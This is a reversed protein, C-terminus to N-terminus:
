KKRIPSMVIRYPFPKWAKNTGCGCNTSKYISVDQGEVTATYGYQTTGKIDDLMWEHLLKGTSGAVSYVWVRDLGILVKVPDLVQNDATVLKAPFLDARIDTM